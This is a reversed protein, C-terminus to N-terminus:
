EAMSEIIKEAIAKEANASVAMTLTLAELVIADDGNEGCQGYTRKLADILVKEQEDCFHNYVADIAFRSLERKILTQVTSIPLIQKLVCVMILYALHTRSYKKRVPPPVIGLKVYNNIISPTIVKAGDSSFFDLHKETLAIVQDMYLDIEPLEEWRPLRFNMNKEFWGRLNKDENNSSKM